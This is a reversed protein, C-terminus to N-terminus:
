DTEGNNAVSGCSLNKGITPSKPPEDEYYISAVIGYVMSVMFLFFLVSLFIGFVLKVKKKNM